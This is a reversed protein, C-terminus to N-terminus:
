GDSARASSDLDIEEEVGYTSRLVELDFVGPRPRRFSIEPANLSIRAMGDAAAGAENTYGVSEIEIRTPILPSVGAGTRVEVRVPNQLTSRISRQGGILEAHFAQGSRPDVVIRLERGDDRSLRMAVRVQNAGTWAPAPVLEVREADVPRLGALVLTDIPQLPVGAFGLGQGTSSLFLRRTEVLDFFWFQTQGTAGQGSGIHFITRHPAGITLAVQNPEVFMFHGDGQERRRDGNEDLWTMSTVARAWVRDLGELRSNYLNAVAQADYQATVDEPVSPGIEPDNSRSACGGLLGLQLGLLVIATTLARKSM